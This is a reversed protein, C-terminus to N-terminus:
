PADREHPALTKLFSVFADSTLAEIENTVRLYIQKTTDDDLHGLMTQVPKWPNPNGAAREALYRWVAATHRLDHVTHVAQVKTVRKGMAADVTEITRTLGAAVMLTKFLATIRARTLPGGASRRSDAHNLFLADPPPMRRRGATAAVAAKREPGDIYLILESLLWSPFLGDRSRSPGGKVVSLRMKTSEFMESGTPLAAAAARVQHVTLGCVEFRRMGTHIMVEWILRDRCRQRSANPVDSPLPGAHARCRDWEAYTLPAVGGDREVGGSAYESADLDREGLAYLGDRTSWRYFELVHSLRQRLTGKALLEGTRPSVARTLGRSYADIDLSSVANWAKKRYALYGWWLRLNDAAAVASGITLDTRRAARAYLYRFAPEVIAGTDVDVLFPFDDPLRCRALQAADFGPCEAVQQFRGVCINMGYPLDAGTRM